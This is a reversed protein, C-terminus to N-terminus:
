RSLDRLVYLGSQHDSALILDERAYIGWVFPRDEREAGEVGPAPIGPIFFGTERPRTPDSIDLVRVGDSYWSAYLRDGLVAVQHVTYWGADAGVARSGRARATAFTGVQIPMAPNTVDWFRLYGWQSSPGTTSLAGDAVGDARLPVAEDAQILVRGGRATVASHANGEDDSGFTTRGLYRPNRLDSIDLIIVGADWYAVYALKGDISARVSHAYMRSDRGLGSRADLGLAVGAGWHALQRPARPDSLDVIRLDGLADGNMSESFPVALLGITRGERRFMTLEHVGSLGAGVDFFSLEVPERPSTVDWLSLGGVGSGSCPQLGTALLDGRFAPGDAALVQVDEASTGSREALTGVATPRTPDALDVITVGHGGCAAVGTAGRAGTTGVYAFTRHAWVSANPARQNLDSHGVLELNQVLFREDQARSPSSSALLLLAGMGLAVARRHRLPTTEGTACEITQM